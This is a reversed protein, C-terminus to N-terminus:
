AFRKHPTYRPKGLKANVEDHAACTWHCFENRGRVDPPHDSVIREWTGVCSKCGTSNERVIEGFVRLWFRALRQAEDDMVLPQSIAFAHLMVWLAKGTSPNM